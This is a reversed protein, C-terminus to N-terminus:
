ASGAGHPAASACLESYGVRAAIDTLKLSTEILYRHTLWRRTDDLLKQFSTGETKLRGHLGSPTLGLANGVHKPGYNGGWVASSRRAYETSRIPPLIEAARAEEECFRMLLKFLQPDAHPIPLILTAASISRPSRRDFAVWSGLRREHDTHDAPQRHILGCLGSALSRRGRGADAVRLAHPRLRHAAGRDSDDGSLVMRRPQAAPSRWSNSHNTSIVTSLARLNLLGTTLDPSNAILCGLPKSTFRAATGYKLGFCPDGTVRASLTLVCSGSWRSGPITGTTSSLGVEELIPRHACGM